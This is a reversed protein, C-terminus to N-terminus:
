FLLLTVRATADAKIVLFSRPDSSVGDYLRVPADSGILIYHAKRGLQHSVSTQGTATVDIAERIEIRALPGSLLFNVAAVLRDVLKQLPGGGVDAGPVRM